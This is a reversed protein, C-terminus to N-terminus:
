YGSAEGRNNVLVHVKDGKVDIVKGTEIDGAAAVESSASVFFATDGFAPAYGSAATFAYVGGLALEWENKGSAIDDITLSGTAVGIIGGRDYVDGSKVASTEGKVTIVQGPQVFNKM